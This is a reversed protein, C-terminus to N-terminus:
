IIKLLFKLQLEFDKMKVGLATEGIIDDIEAEKTIADDERIRNREKCYEQYIATYSKIFKQNDLAVLVEKLLEKETM